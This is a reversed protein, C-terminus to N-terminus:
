PSKLKNVAWVMIISLQYLVILPVAFLMQNFIDTTPTLIAALIFSVMIVWRQLTMLKMVSLKKVSNILLLVLPLQFLIGFGLTYRTVFSFYENTTILSQIDSTEFRELFNLAAPLSVFYAFSVGLALLVSSFLLLLWINQRMNSPLAPEVFKIVHYVFVPLALLAGFYISIQLILDFAGTPSSFYLTQGLPKLLVLLLQDHLLYGILTGVLLAAVSWLVRSRIESLHAVFPQRVKEPSTNSKRKAKVAPTQLHM